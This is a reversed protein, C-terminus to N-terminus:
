GECDRHIEDLLLQMHAIANLALKVEPVLPELYQEGFRRSVEDDWEDRSEQWSEQIQQLGTRILATGSYLDGKRM